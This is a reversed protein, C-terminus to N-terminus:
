ELRIEKIIIERNGTVLYKLTNNRFEFPRINIEPIKCEKIVNGNKDVVLLFNELKTDPNRFDQSDEPISYNKFIVAFIENDSDYFFGTYISSNNLVRLKNRIDRNISYGYITRRLNAANKINIIEYFNYKQDYATIQNSYLQLMYISKTSIAIFGDFYNILNLKRYIDSIVGDSSRKTGGLNIHNLPSIDPLSEPTSKINSYRVFYLLDNNYPNFYIKEINEYEIQEILIESLINEVVDYEFFKCKVKQQGNEIILDLLHILITSDQQLWCVSYIGPYIPNAVEIDKKTSIHGKNNVVLIHLNSVAFLFFSNNKASYISHYYDDMEISENKIIKDVKFEDVIIYDKNMNKKLLKKIISEINELEYYKSFNLKSLIKGNNDLLIISNTVKINFYNHYLGLPDNLVQFNWGKEKKLSALGEDTVGSVFGIIEIENSDANIRKVIDELNSLYSKCNPITTFFYM